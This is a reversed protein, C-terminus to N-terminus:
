SPNAALAAKIAAADFARATFVPKNNLLRSIGDVLSAAHAPSYPANAGGALSTQIDDVLKDLAAKTPADFANQSGAVAKGDPYRVKNAHDLLKRANRYREDEAVTQGLASIIATKSAASAESEATIKRMFQQFTNQSDLTAEEKARNIQVTMYTHDVMLSSCHEDQYIRANKQNFYWGSWPHPKAVASKSPDSYPMRVFAYNGYELTGARISALQMDGALLTAHYKFEVDSKNAKLLGGGITDLVQLIPSAPPYAMAGLGAAATLLGSIETNEKVDLEIIYLEVVLPKGKYEIPGYIPMQSFNLFQGPQVGESYYVLRGRDRGETTFNFDNDPDLEAVRAVIAIEGRKRLRFLEEWRETFDKIYGQQMYVSIVQGKLVTPGQDAALQKCINPTARTDYPNVEEPKGDARKRGKMFDFDSKYSEGCVSEYRRVFPVCSQSADWHAKAYDNVGQAERAHGAGAAFAGIAAAAVWVFAWSRM